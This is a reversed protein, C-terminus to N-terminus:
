GKSSVKLIVWMWHLKGSHADEWRGAREVNPYLVWCVYVIMPRHKDQLSARRVDHAYGHISLGSKNVTQSVVFAKKWAGFYLAVLTESDNEGM